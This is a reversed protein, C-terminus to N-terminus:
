GAIQDLPVVDAGVNGSCLRKVVQVAGEDDRGAVRDAARGGSCAVDNRASGAISAIGGARPPAEREIARRRRAVQDLSVQDARIRGAFM